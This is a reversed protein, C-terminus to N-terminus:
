TQFAPRRLQRAQEHHRAIQGGLAVTLDPGGVGPRERRRPIRVLLAQEVSTVPDVLIGRQQLLPGYRAAAAPDNDLWLVRVPKSLNPPTAPVKM